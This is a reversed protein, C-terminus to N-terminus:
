MKVLNRYKHMSYTRRQTTYNRSKQIYLYTGDLVYIAQNDDAGLLTKALFTNHNLIYDERSISNFGLFTPVFVLMLVDKIAHFMYCVRQKTLGNGFLCASVSHSLNLRHKMLFIAFAICTCKRRSNYLRSEIYSPHQMFNEKSVGLMIEHNQNSVGSEPHFDM